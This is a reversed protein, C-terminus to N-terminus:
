FNVISESTMLYGSPVATQPNRVVGAPIGWNRNIEVCRMADEPTDCYVWKASDGTFVQVIVENKSSKRPLEPNFSIQM